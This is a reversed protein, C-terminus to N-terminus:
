PIDEAPQHQQFRNRNRHHDIDAYDNDRLDQFRHSDYTPRQQIPQFVNQQQQQLMRMSAAIAPIFTALLEASTHTPFSQQPSWSPPQPSWNPVLQRDLIPQRRNNFLAKRFCWIVGILCVLVILVIGLGMGMSPFHLELFHTGSSSDIVQNRAQEKNQSQGM